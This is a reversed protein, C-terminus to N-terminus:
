RRFMSKLVFWGNEPREALRRTFYPYWATGYPTYVRVRYGEKLLSLQLSEAIGYLLQFEFRSKPVKGAEVLKKVQRILEEDHTAVAAYGGHRLQLKVLRLFQESVAKKGQFALEPPERYAGKVIRVNVGGRAQEELDAYSRYLYAQIVIGVREPGYGALLKRFLFLTAGTVPSDEMDIRVFGNHEVAQEVIQTVLALCLEADLLLGLQTLKVSVNPASGDAALLRVARIIEAAATEAEEKTSVAEGLYDLTVMLGKAELARVREVAAELGEAAVFRAAGLRMGHRRMISRVPGFGAAALVTRRYLSDKM